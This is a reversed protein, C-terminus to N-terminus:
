YFVVVTACCPAHTNFLVDIKSFFFFGFLLIFKVVILLLIRYINHLQLKATSVALTIAIPSARAVVAKMTEVMTRATCFASKSSSNCSVKFLNSAMLVRGVVRGGEGVVGVGVAGFLGVCAVSDGPLGVFGDFGVVTVIGVGCVAVEVCDVGVVCPTTHGVMVAGLVTSVGTVDFGM